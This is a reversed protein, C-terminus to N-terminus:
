VWGRAKVWLAVAVLGVVGTAAILGFIVDIAADTANSSQM